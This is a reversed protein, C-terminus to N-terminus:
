ITTVVEGSRLNQITDGNKNSTHAFFWDMGAGGKLADTLGNDFVTTGNLFYSGNLGGSQTGMLQAIRTNYDADTRGWDAMIALLPTINADYAYQSPNAPDPEIRYPFVGTGTTEKLAGKFGNVTAAV